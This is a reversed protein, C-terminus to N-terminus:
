PLGKNGIGTVVHGTEMSASTGSARKIYEMLKKGKESLPKWGREGSM